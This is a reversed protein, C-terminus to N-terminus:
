CLKTRSFTAFGFETKDDGLIETWSFNYFTLYRYSTNISDVIRKCRVDQWTIFNHYIKFSKRDWFTGTNRQLSMGIGELKFNKEKAYEVAEKIVNRIAQWLQDPDIESAGPEPVLVVVDDSFTSHKTGESDYIATRVSTTGVDLSLVYRLNEKAM